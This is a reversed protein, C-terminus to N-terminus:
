LAAFVSCGFNLSSIGVQVIYFFLFFIMKNIVIVYTINKDGENIAIL